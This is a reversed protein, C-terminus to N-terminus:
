SANNFMVMPSEATFNSTYAPDDYIQEGVSSPALSGSAVEINSEIDRVSM